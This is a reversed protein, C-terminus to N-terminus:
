ISCYSFYKINDCKKCKVCKRECITDKHVFRRDECKNCTTSDKAYFGSCLEIDDLYLISNCKSCDVIFETRKIIERTKRHKVNVSEIEPIEKCMNLIWFNSHMPHIIEQYIINVKDGTVINGLTEILCIFHIDIGVFYIKYVSFLITISKIKAQCIYEREKLKDDKLKETSPWFFDYILDM